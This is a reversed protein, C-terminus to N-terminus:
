TTKINNKGGGEPEGHEASKRKRKKHTRAHTCSHILSQIFTHIFLDKPIDAGTYVLNSSYM